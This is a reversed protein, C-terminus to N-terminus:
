VVSKRDLQFNYSTGEISRTVPGANTDFAATNYYGNDMGNWGYNCHVLTEYQYYSYVVSTGSMLDVKRRRTLYGDLVWAHGEKYETHTHKKGLFWHKHTYTEKKANGRIILPTGSTISNIIKDHNYADMAGVNKYGMRSFHTRANVTQAGSGGDKALGWNM